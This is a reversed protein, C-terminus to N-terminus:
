CGFPRERVLGRENGHRHVQARSLWYLIPNNGTGGPCFEAYEPDFPGARGVGSLLGCPRGCYDKCAPAPDSLQRLGRGDVGIEHICTNGTPSGKFCFLLKKADWSLEPDTYVGEGLTEATSPDIVPRIVWDRRPASPNELVYIGGGGPPWKYYTDYIHIGSYSHRKVFLLPVDLQELPGTRVGERECSGQEANAFEVAFKVPGLWSLTMVLIFLKARM